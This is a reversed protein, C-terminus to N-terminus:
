PREMAATTSRHTAAAAPLSFRAPAWGQQLPTFYDFAVQRRRYRWGQGPQHVLRDYYRGAAIHPEGDLVCPQWLLSTASAHRAQEPDADEGHGPEPTRDEPGLTIELNTVHHWFATLGSEVLGGFFHHLEDRGCAVELGHFEGDGTFLNVLEAVDGDDLVRCYRADLARIAEIDELRRLRGELTEPTSM